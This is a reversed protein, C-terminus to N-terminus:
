HGPEPTKSSFLNGEKLWALKAVDLGVKRSEESLKSFIVQAQGVLLDEQAAQVLDFLAVYLLGRKRKVHIKASRDLGREYERTALEIRGSRLTALALDFHTGYRDSQMDLAVQFLRMAEEYRAQRFQCWGILYVIGAVAEESSYNTDRILAEFCESAEERRGMMYLTDAFGKRHWPDGPELDMAKRYAQNASMASRQDRYQLAWGLNYFLWAEAPAQRTAIELTEVAKIYEGVDALYIGYWGLTHPADPEIQIAKKLAAEALDYERLGLGVKALSLHVEARDPQLRSLLRLTEAAREYQGNNQLLEGKLWLAITSEGNRQLEAELEQLAEEDSGKRRLERVLSELLWSDGPAVSLARRILLVAEETQNLAILAGAKAKMAVLWEPALELARGFNQLALELEGRLMFARGREYGVLAWDPESKEAIDLLPLAADPEGQDILIGAKMVLTGGDNPDFSLADNLASLAKLPQGRNSFAAALTVKVWALQKTEVKISGLIEIAEDDRELDHLLTGKIGLAFPLKDKGALAKEVIKLADQLNGRRKALHVALLLMASNAPSLRLARDLLKGAWELHGSINASLAAERCAELAGQSDGEFERVDALAEWLIPDRPALQLGRQLEERAESFREKNTYILGLYGFTEQPAAGTDRSKILMAEAKDEKGLRFLAIGYDCYLRSPYEYYRDFDNVYRDFLDVSKQFADDPSIPLSDSARGPYSTIRRSLRGVLCYSSARILDFRIRTHDENGFKEAMRAAAPILESLRRAVLEFRRLAYEKRVRELDGQLDALISFDEVPGSPRVQPAAYLASRVPRSLGTSLTTLM